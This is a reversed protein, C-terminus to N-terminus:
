AEVLVGELPLTYAKDSLIDDEDLVTRNVENITTRIDDLNITNPFLLVEHVSSPIVIFDGIINEIRERIGPYLIAGAGFHMKSNTLCYLPFNDEFIDIDIMECVSQLKAPLNKVTNQFAKEFFDEQSIELNSVHKNFVIINSGDMVDSIDIKYQLELGCDLSKYLVDGRDHKYGGKVLVFYSRSFFEDKNTLINFLKDKIEEM